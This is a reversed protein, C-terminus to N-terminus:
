LVDIFQEVMGIQILKPPPLSEITKFIALRLSTSLKVNSASFQFLTNEQLAYPTCFAVGPVCDSSLSFNLTGEIALSNLAFFSDVAFANTTSPSLLKFDKWTNLGSVTLNLINVSIGAFSTNLNGFDVIPM